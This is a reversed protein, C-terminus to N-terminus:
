NKKQINHWLNEIEKLEDLYMRVDRWTLGDEVYTRIARSSLENRINSDDIILVQNYNINHINCYKLIEYDRSDHSDPTKDYFKLGNYKKSFKSLKNLGNKYMRWTSSLIIRLEYKEKLRNILYQYVVLNEHSLVYITKKNLAFASTNNLVGDVDLFIYLIPKTRDM